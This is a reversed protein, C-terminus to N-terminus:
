RCTHCNPNKEELNEPHISYFQRWWNLSYSGNLSVMVYEKNYVVEKHKLFKDKWFTYRGGMDPLSKKHARDLSNQEKCIARLM